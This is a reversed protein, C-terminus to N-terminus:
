IFSHTQFFELKICFYLNGNKLIGKLPHFPNTTAPASRAGTSLDRKLRGHTLHFAGGRRVTRQGRCYTHSRISPPKLCLFKRVRSPVHRQRTAVSLAYTWAPGPSKRPRANKNTVKHKLTVISKQFSCLFTQPLAKCGEGM